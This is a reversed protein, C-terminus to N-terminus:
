FVGCVRLEGEIANAFWRQKFQVATAEHGEYTEPGQGIAGEAVEGEQATATHGFAAARRARDVIRDTSAAANRRIFAPTRQRLYTVLEAWIAMWESSLASRTSSGQDVHLAFAFHVAPHGLVIGSAIDEIANLLVLEDERAVERAGRLEALAVGAADVFSSTIRSALSLMGGVAGDITESSARQADEICPRSCVYAVLLLVRCECLWPNSSTSAFERLRAGHAPVRAFRVALDTVKGSLRELVRKSDEVTTNMNAVLRQGCCLAFASLSGPPHKQLKVCDYFLTTMIWGMAQEYLGRAHEPPPAFAGGGRGM